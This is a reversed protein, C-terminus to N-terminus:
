VTLTCVYDFLLSWTLDAPTVLDDPKRPVPDVGGGERCAHCVAHSCFPAAGDGDIVDRTELRVLRWAFPIRQVALRAIGLYGYPRSTLDRMVDTASVADYDKFVDVRPRFVDIRGNFQMVHGLLPVARGGVFERIELVDARGLSDIRLMASHSHVGHTAFRIWESIITSGRYQLIDGTRLDAHHWVVKHLADTRFQKM